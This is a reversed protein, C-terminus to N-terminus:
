KIEKEKKTFDGKKPEDKLSVDKKTKKLIKTAKLVNADPIQM